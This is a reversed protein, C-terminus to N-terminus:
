LGIGTAASLNSLQQRWANLFATVFVAVTAAGILEIYADSAGWPVNPLLLLATSVGILGPMARHRWSGRPHTWEPFHIFAVMVAGIVAGAFWAQIEMVMVLFLVVGLVGGVGTQLMGAGWASHRRLALALSTMIEAFIFSLLLSVATFVILASWTMLPIDPGTNYVIGTVLTCFLAYVLTQQRMIRRTPAGLRIRQRALRWNLRHPLRRTYLAPAGDLYSVLLDLSNADSSSVATAAQCLDDLAVLDEMEGLYLALGMRVTVPLTTDTMMPRLWLLDDPGLLRRWMEWEHHALASAVILAKDDPTLVLHPNNRQETILVLASADLLLHASQRTRQQQTLLYRVRRAAQAEEGFWNQVAALLYDHALEYTVADPEGEVQIILRKDHLVDLADRVLEARIRGSFATTISDRVAQLVERLESQTIAVYPRLRQLYDDLALQYLTQRDVMHNATAVGVRDMHWALALPALSADSLWDTPQKQDRLGDPTVLTALLYRAAKIYPRDTQLAEQLHQRLIAEAGGQQRYHDLSLTTVADPLTDVLRACVLQLQPSIDEARLDALIQDVLGAEYTLGFPIVPATIAQRAEAPTLSLLYQEHTTFAATRERLPASYGYYDSRLAFIFQVRLTDDHLCQLLEDSFAIQDSPSCRSFFEEFQDFFVVLPRQVVRSVQHLFQPLTTQALRSHSDWETLMLTQKLALTPSLHRARVYIPYKGVADLVPFLGAQVFSSKGVGSRGHLWLLRTTELLAGVQTIATERGFFRLSDRTQFNRLGLYPTVATVTVPQLSQSYRALAAHLSAREDMDGLVVNGTIVSGGVHGGVFVGREGVLVSQLAELYQAPLKQDAVAQQTGALLRNVVAENM